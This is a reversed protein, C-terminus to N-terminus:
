SAPREPGADGINESDPPNLPHNETGASPNEGGPQNDLDIGSSARTHALLTAKAAAFEEDTLQGERHMKRFDSLTFGVGQGVDSQQNQYKKRVVLAVVVLVVALAALGVVAILIDMTASGASQALLASDTLYLLNSGM